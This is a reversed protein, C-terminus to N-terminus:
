RKLFMECYLSVFWHFRAVISSSEETHDDSNSDLLVIFWAYLVFTLHTPITGDM